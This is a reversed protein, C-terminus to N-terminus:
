GLAGYPNGGSSFVDGQRAPGGQTSFVDGQAHADACAVAILMAMLPWAIPRASRLTNM